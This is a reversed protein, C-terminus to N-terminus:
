SWSSPFSQSKNSEVSFTSNLELLWRAPCSSFPQFDLGAVNRSHRGLLRAAGHCTRLLVPWLDWWFAECEKLWMVSDATPPVPLCCSPCSQSIEFMRRKARTELKGIPTARHRRTGIDTSILSQAGICPQVLGLLYMWYRGLRQATHWRLRCSHHHDGHQNYWLWSELVWLTHLPGGGDDGVNCTVTVRQM